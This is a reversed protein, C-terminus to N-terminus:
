KASGMKAKKATEYDFSSVYNPVISVRRQRKKPKAVQRTPITVGHHTDYWREYAKEDVLWQRGVRISPFGASKMLCTANGRGIGLREALEMITM